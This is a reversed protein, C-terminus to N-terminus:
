NNTIFRRDVNHNKYTQREIMRLQLNLASLKDGSVIMEIEVKIDQIKRRKQRDFELETM